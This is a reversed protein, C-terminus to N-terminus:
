LTWEVPRQPDPTYSCFSGTNVTTALHHGLSPDSARLKEVAAKIGKTVTLRAREADSAARRDRGGLGVAAALQETIREMEERTRAARGIDSNREAEVLNDRLEDLRRKYMAKAQADLFPEGGGRGRRQEPGGGAAERTVLDLAHFEHRPHRLLHALYHLGRSDRLRITRGDFVVTWYDGEKRFLNAPAPPPADPKLLPAQAKKGLDTTALGQDMEDLLSEARRIWGTMGIARFQELAVDLLAAARERDGRTARRADMLAEDFDVIARLPRAGQEDLVARAKAFWAIAEEHRGQLACLRGLALRADMMPYRFDSPLVKERLGREIIEIHDVSATLWLTEAADCVLRVYNNAWAPALDIAPIISALRRLAKEPRGTRAHTRAASADTVARFMKQLAPNISGRM